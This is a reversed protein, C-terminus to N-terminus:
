RVAHRALNRLRSKGLADKLKAVHVETTPPNQGAPRHRGDFGSLKMSRRPRRSAASWRTPRSSPESQGALGQGAEIEGAHFAHYADVSCSARHLQVDVRHRWGRGIAQADLM